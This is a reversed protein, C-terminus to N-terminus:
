SRAEMHICTCSDERRAEMHVNTCLFACGTYVTLYLVWVLWGFVSHSLFLLSLNEHGLPQTAYAGSGTEIGVAGGRAATVMSALNHVHSRSPHANLGYSEEM